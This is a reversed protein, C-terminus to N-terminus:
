RRRRTRLAEPRHVATAGSKASRVEYQPEEPSADVTRGAAETRETIKRVVRGVAEGGPSSWTVEDGERPARKERKKAM